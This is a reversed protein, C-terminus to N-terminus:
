GPALNRTCGPALNRQAGRHWANVSTWSRQRLGSTLTCVHINGVQYDNNGPGQQAERKVKAKRITSAVSGKGQMPRACCSIWVSIPALRRRAFCYRGGVSSSAEKDDRGALTLEGNVLGLFRPSSRSFLCLNPSTPETPDPPLFAMLSPETNPCADAIRDPGPTVPRPPSRRSSRTCIFM